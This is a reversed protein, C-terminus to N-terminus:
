REDKSCKSFPIQRLCFDSDDAAAAKVRHGAEGIHM